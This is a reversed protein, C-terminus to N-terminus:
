YRSIEVDGLIGWSERIIDGFQLYSWITGTHDESGIDPCTIVTKLKTKVMTLLCNWSKYEKSHWHGAILFCNNAATFFVETSTYQSFWDTPKLRGDIRGRWLYYVSNRMGSISVFLHFREIKVAQNADRFSFSEGRREREHIKTKRPVSRVASVLFITRVDIKLKHRM